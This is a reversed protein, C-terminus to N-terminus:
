EIIKKIDSSILSSYVHAGKDNLHYSDNFWERHTLFLTDSEHYLFPINEDASIQQIKEVWKQESPQKFNPSVAFVLQINEQKCLSIFKMLYEIKKTHIPGEPEEEYKLPQNWQNYLPIYGDTEAPFGIVLKRLYSFVKSNHRYLGCVNLPIYEAPSLVDNLLEKVYNESKYYPYLISLTETNWNPTNNIAIAGLELLVIKPKRPAHECLSKLVIYHTFINQGDIGYNSVKLHLSDGIVTPIYHHYARSAGLVAVEASSSYTRYIQNDYGNKMLSDFCFSILNDFLVFGLLVLIIYKAFKM